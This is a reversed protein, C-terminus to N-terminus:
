RYAKSRHAILLVTVLHNEEGVEYVVRWDGVRFRFCGTLPGRLRRISPHEYPNQCLQDFCRHLRRILPQDAQEYTKQAERTFVLEYM